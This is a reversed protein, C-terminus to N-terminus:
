STQTSELLLKERDSAAYVFEIISDADLPGAYKVGTKNTTDAPYFKLVPWQRESYVTSTAYEILFGNDETVDAKAFLVNYKPSARENVTELVTEFAAFERSSPHYYAVLIPKNGGILHPFSHKNIILVPPILSGDSDYRIAFEGFSLGIYLFFFCAVTTRSASASFCSM